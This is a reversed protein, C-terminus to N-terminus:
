ESHPALERSAPWSRFWRSGAACGCHHCRHGSFAGQDALNVICADPGPPPGAESARAKAGVTHTYPKIRPEFLVCILEDFCTSKAAAMLGAEVVSRM